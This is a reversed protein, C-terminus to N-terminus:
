LQEDKLLFDIAMVAVARQSSSLKKGEMMVDVVQLLVNVINGGEIEQLAKAGTEKIESNYDIDLEETPNGQEDATNQIKRALDLAEYKSRDVRMDGVEGWDRDRLMKELTGAGIKKLTEGNQSYVLGTPISKQGRRVQTTRLLNIMPYPSRRAYNFTGGDEASRDGGDRFTWQPHFFVLQLLDETNLGGELASSLTGSFAEFFEVGDNGGMCFSPTILLTTSVEKENEEDMIMVEKWYKEYVGEITSVRDVEYRINGMPLGALDAGSTFPCLALSSMMTDVWLRSQEVIVNDGDPVNEPMSHFLEEKVKEEDEVVEEEDLTVWNDDDNDWLPDYGWEEDGLERSRTLKVVLNTATEDLGLRYTVSSGFSICIDACVNLHDALAQPLQTKSYPLAEIKYRVDKDITEKPPTFFLTSTTGIEEDM